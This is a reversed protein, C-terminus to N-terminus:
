DPHVCRMEIMEVAFSSRGELPSDQSFNRLIFADTYPLCAQAAPVMLGCTGLLAVACLSRLITSKGAMNPGAHCPQQSPSYALPLLRPTWTRWAADQSRLPCSSLARGTLLFMSSMSVSNTVTSASKGDLWYPWMRDIEITRRSDLNEPLCQEACVHM